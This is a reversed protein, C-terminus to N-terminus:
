WTIDNGPRGTREVCRNQIHVLYDNFIDDLASNPIRITEIGNALLYADRAMDRDATWDHSAGDLEIALKAEMCFFDLVYPGFPHQRRFRFGMQTLRLM